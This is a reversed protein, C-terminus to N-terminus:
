RSSGTYTRKITMLDGKHLAFGERKPPLRLFAGVKYPPPKSGDSGRQEGALNKKM